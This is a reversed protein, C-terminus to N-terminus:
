SGGVATVQPLLLCKENSLVDACQVFRWAHVRNLGLYLFFTVKHVESTSENPLGHM